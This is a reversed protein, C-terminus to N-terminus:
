ILEIKDESNLTVIAKKWDPMTGMKTRYRRKKGMYVQTRVGEVRVSFLDEVAHKIQDKSAIANVVFTYANYRTSQHTGKETVMPRLIIQHPRLELGPAGPKSVKGKRNKKRYRVPRPRTLM